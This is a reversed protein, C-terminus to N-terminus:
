FLSMKRETIWLLWESTELREKQMYERTKKQCIRQVWRENYDFWLCFIGCCIPLGLLGVVAIWLELTM